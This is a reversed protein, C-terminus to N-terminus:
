EKVEVSTKDLGDVAQLLIRQACQMAARQANRRYPATGREIVGESGSVVWACADSEAVTPAAPGVVLHLLVSEGSKVSLSCGRATLRGWAFPRPTTKSECAM